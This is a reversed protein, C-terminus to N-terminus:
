LCRDTKYAKYLFDSKPPAWINNITDLLTWYNRLPPVQRDWLPPTPLGADEGPSVLRTMVCLSPSGAGPHLLAPPLIELVTDLGDPLRSFFNSSILPYSSFDRPKYM